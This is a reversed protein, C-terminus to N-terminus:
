LISITLKENGSFVVDHTKEQKHDKLYQIAEELKKQDAPNNLIDDLNRNPLTNEFDFKNSVKEITLELVGSIAKFLNRIKTEM